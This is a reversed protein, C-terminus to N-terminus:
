ALLLDSEALSNLGEFKVMMDTAGDGDADISLYKDEFRVEAGTGSFAADGIFSLTGFSTLDILDEGSEFQYVRDASGETAGSDGLDFVFTDTDSDHGAYLRDQGTGGDIVDAGGNAYILDNGDGANIADNGNRGVIKDNGAGGIITGGNSSGYIQDNGDGGDITDTGGNGYIRDNGEGGVINDDGNRGIIKDHGTGGDITSGESSGYIRDNGDGGTIEDTGGNGYIKDNGTGGDITDNGNRGIIKDHGDGGTITGGDSSGYIRDNGAGGDITDTGGNGYIKDNGEGGDISDNGNRGVIKDHGDGGTITSGGTSGYIQDNGAGGDITDNGGNGYIRDNGTGGDISDNGDRGIIRDHGDGGTITGGDSSGYIKDNGAGGIITDNGGNGYIRDNGTGGDISDNGAGGVIKDHGDGGTITGGESSGYIQDNGAGGDITDTGGNGYIRDNGDGGDISDDGDGGIIKDHGGNGIMLANDDGYVRLQDNGNGGTYTEVNFFYHNLWDSVDFITANANGDENDLTDGNLAFGLHYIGDIVTNIANDGRFKVQAGDNQVLHFGTEEGDEDDGHLEAWEAAHNAVLYANLARVDEASFLGDEGVGTADIAELILANLGNAAIAGGQIDAASTNRALDDENKILDVMQDLGTGTTSVDTYYYNLWDAVDQINANANGDENLLTDGQIEFGLHYIGDAVTDVLNKGFIRSNAGDNQVLHFGTEEGDEDDGHLVVWEDAHNTRLYDNIARVDDASIDNDTAIGTAEIAEVILANMADAAAAGGAIDEDPITNNLGCDQLIRTVIRDLGSGTTPTYLTDM